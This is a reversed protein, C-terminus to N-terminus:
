VKAGLVEVVALLKKGNSAYEKNEALLKKLEPTNKAATQLISCLWRCLPIPRTLEPLGSALAGLLWRRATAAGGRWGAAKSVGAYAALM